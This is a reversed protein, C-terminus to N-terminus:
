GHGPEVEAFKQRMRRPDDIGKFFFKSQQVDGVIEPEGTSCVRGAIGLDADFEEGILIDSRDGVAAQFILKKRRPDLLMVSSAEARMVAAASQAIAQLVTRM